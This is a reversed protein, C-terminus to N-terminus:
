LGALQCVNDSVSGTRSRRPARSNLKCVPWRTPAHALCLEILRCDEHRVHSTRAPVDPTRSDSLAAVCADEVSVDGLPLTNSISAVGGGSPAPTHRVRARSLLAPCIFSFSPPVPAKPPPRTNHAHSSDVRAESAGYSSVRMAPYKLVTPLAVRSTNEARPFAADTIPGAVTSAVLSVTVLILSNESLALALICSHPRSKWDEASTGRSTGCACSSASGM